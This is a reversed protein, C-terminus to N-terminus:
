RRIALQQLQEGLAEVTASDDYLRERAQWMRKRVANRVTSDECLQQVLAAYAEISSAVFEDLGMQRLIASAFRGRMFKGEWAVIPTGCQVAQMATNFGSFGVTDLFADARGLLGFFQARDLWPVFRVTADFDVGGETFAGRLRQELVKAKLDDPGAFFLLKCPQCRRAVEIWLPDAQPTYKFPQGACVLLRDGEAVGWAAVDPEEPEIDYPQYACGLRPLAILRESYHDDRGPPEFAEASLYADMTPLGTTIPHGWSAVQMRALRLASLRVTTPDMGIEPYLLVDFRADAIAKAWATWDGMNRHLSKVRREAWQTEADSGSGTHFLHLEFRKPDLHEIWGRLVADWVSHGHVHASVIGIRLVGGPARSEPPPLRSKRAWGDMLSTCLQGYQELLATFDKEIYALYFPQQAGVAAYAEAPRQNTFWSRLRELEQRFRMLAQEQEGTSRAVAPLQAMTEGWRAQLHNAKLRVATHYAQRAAEADGWGMLANGLWYHVEADRSSAAAAQELLPVAQPWDKRDLYLMGLNFAAQALGPQIALAARLPEIAADPQGTDRLVAGLNAHAGAHRPDAEIARRLLRQAIVLRGEALSFTALQAFADASRPEPKKLRALLNHAEDLQRAALAQLALEVLLQPHDPRLARARAFAEDAGKRSNARVSARALEVWADVHDPHAEVVRRLAAMAPHPEGTDLQIRGQVYLARMDDPDAALQMRVLQQAEEIRGAEYLALPSAREGAEGQGKLKRLWDLM